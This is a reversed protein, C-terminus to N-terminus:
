SIKGLIHYLTHATPRTEGSKHMGFIEQEPRIAGSGFDFQLLLITVFIFATNYFVFFHINCNFTMKYGIRWNNVHSQVKIVWNYDIVRCINSACSLCDIVHISLYCTDRQGADTQGDTQGTTVSEQYDSVCIQTECAVCANSTIIGSHKSICTYLIRIAHSWM